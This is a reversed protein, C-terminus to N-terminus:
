LECELLVLKCEVGWCYGLMNGDWCIVCYCLIVVVIYNVVCVQVVVCVVKFVGICVVIEIYSIISGFLVECLVQWVCEQFVIGCVDLLLDLGIFLVEVFGVVKVVLEEFGVDGGIFEVKLFMNQLDCVFVDFDDGMLIVCIGCDSQVVLILGFLCEGVVFCIM